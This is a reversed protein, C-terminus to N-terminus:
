RALIMLNWYSDICTQLSISEGSQNIISDWQYNGSRDYADDNVEMTQYVTYNRSAGNSDTVCITDGINIEMLFSFIGPNHGIIHSPSNDTTSGTGTWIGAQSSNPAAESNQSAILPVITGHYNLTNQQSVIQDNKALEQELQAQQEAKIREEEAENEQRIRAEEALQEKRIQEQKAQELRAQELRNQEEQQKKELEQAKKQEQEQQKKREEEDKKQQPEIKNETEQNETAEPKTESSATTANKQKEQPELSLTDSSQSVNEIQSFEGSFFTAALHVKQDIFFALSLLFTAFIVFLKDKKRLNFFM